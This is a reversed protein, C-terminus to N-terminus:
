LLRTASERTLEEVKIETLRNDKLLLFRDALGKVFSVNSEAIVLSRGTVRIKMLAERLQQQVIPAVGLTPEDM